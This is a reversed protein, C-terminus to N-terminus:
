DGIRYLNYSSDNLNVRVRYLGANVAINNDPDQDLFGDDGADGLDDGSSWDNNTRFKIEGNVFTAIDGVFINPQIETLAFDPGDAGWNNFGSGVVGWVDTAVISYSNDNFNITILYHGETVAINNDPDQDLIGDNGADGLDDGSSWDNNTRFKIEGDVLRVSAKFTDTIYDYYFKGDPGDAGWNNYGSGVVGWSWEEITYSNDNTNITIRYDGATVDINNGPLQDLVGDGDGDGLDDGSDWDNNTRFKIQGDILSVYAVIIGPVITTYFQGDPGASGWDNYGSGVVGWPSPGILVPFSTVTITVTNSYTEVMMNDYDMYNAKVRLDINGSTDGEIGLNLAINNLTNTNVTLSNINELSSFSEIVAFDTDALAAELTYTITLNQDDLFQWSSTFVEDSLNEPLLTYSEGDEPSLLVPGDQISVVAFSVFNSVDSGSSVRLYATTEIFPTNDLSALTTNLETQTFTFSNSETSGISTSSEFLDDTSLEINYTGSANNHDTWTINFAQNNLNQSNIVVLGIGPDTLIIGDQTTLELTNDEECGVFLTALVLILIKFNIKM